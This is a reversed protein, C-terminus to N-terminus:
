PILGPSTENEGETQSLGRAPRCDLNSVSATEFVSREHIWSTANLQICWHVIAHIERLLADHPIFVVPKDDCKMFHLWTYADTDRDLLGQCPPMDILTLVPECNGIVDSGTDRASEYLM